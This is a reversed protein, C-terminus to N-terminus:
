PVIFIIVAKFPVAKGNEVYPSFKWQAVANYAPFFLKSDQYAGPGSSLLTGDDDVSINVQVKTGHPAASPFIPDVKNTALKRAEENSLQTIGPAPEVHLKFPFGMLATVQVPIGDVVAQKLKWKLLAEHLPQDLGPNDCGAPFEERVNGSRDALIFAGCGGSDQGGVVNPWAIDTGGIVLSRMADEDVRVIQIREAAATPTKVEFLSEGAADKLDEQSQSLPDLVTIAAEIESKYEPETVVRRAVQKGAFKQYERFEAFYGKSFVSELRGSGDFCVIIRDVRFHLDGCVPEHAGDSPEAIEQKTQRLRAAFPVPDFVATVVQYLWYPYYDGADKESIANGNVILTQSFVPSQITRRYKEPAVWYEEVEARRDSQSNTTERISFKIHFPPSGALTLQSKGLARDTADGLKISHRTQGPTDFAIAVTLLLSVTLVFRM